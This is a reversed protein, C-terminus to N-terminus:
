PLMVDEFIYKVDFEVEFKKLLEIYEERFTKKKHHLEQNEIYKYVNEIQSKSYSFAGYGAQWEFKGVVWKNTNIFMSSCRKIEKVLSSLAEIPNYGILIHVHDPMGNVIFLKHGKEKITGAIYKYLEEKNKVPILNQRGKVAFVIHIFIQTYTNAM